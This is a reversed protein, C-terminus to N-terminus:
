VNNHVNSKSDKRESEFNSKSPITPIKTQSDVVPKCYGRTPKLTNLLSMKPQMSQTDEFWQELYMQAVPQNFKIADDIPTHGWRDKILSDRDKEPYFRLLYQVVVVQNEVVAMHLPTRGDYDPKKLDAGTLHLRKLMEVDGRKAALMVDSALKEQIEDYNSNTSKRPDIKDNDLLMMSDFHHFTFIDVIEKCFDIGRVSNGCEDLPPSFLSIGCVGPIVLIVCGSVGSKAPIGIDFAFQGSYDYMGCSLMLSLCKRVSEQSLIQEGSTPCIGSNALTAAIVAHSECTVELSCSQFYFDLTEHLNTKDPFSKSEKMYHGLAYNRHGEKKESLYVANNFGLHEGGTMLTYKQHLWDFRDAAALDSRILSTVMIAGANIMPNHPRNIKDLVIKNFSAGSPEKGVFKHVYKSDYETLALAYNIPKCTSQVTYPIKTDGINWRQGDITCISVGFWERNQRSLQPIYDALNGRGKTSIKSIKKFITKMKKTFNVFDPIALGDKFIKTLVDIEDLIMGQFLDRDITLSDDADNM